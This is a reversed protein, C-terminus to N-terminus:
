PCLKRIAERREPQREFPLPTVALLVGGAGWHAADSGCRGTGPHSGGVGPRAYRNSLEGGCVQCVEIVYVRETPTM